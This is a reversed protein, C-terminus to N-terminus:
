IDVSKNFSKIVDGNSPQSETSVIMSSSVLSGLNVQNSGLKDSYYTMNTLPKKNTTQSYGDVEKRCKILFDYPDIRCVLSGEEISNFTGHPTHYKVKVEFKSEHKIKKKSIGFKKSM